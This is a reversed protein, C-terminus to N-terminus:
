VHTCFIIPEGESDAHGSPGGDGEKISRLGAGPRALLEPLSNPVRAVIKFLGAIVQLLLGLPEAVLSLLGDLASAMLHLGCDILGTIKGRFRDFGCLSQDLYTGITVMMKIPYFRYHGALLRSMITKSFM